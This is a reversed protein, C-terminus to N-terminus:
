NYLWDIDVLSVDIQALRTKKKQSGGLYGLLIKDGVFHIAIYCYWGDPDGELTKIKGWTKGNDKSVAINLPIRKGKTEPNSGDNNNWVLVLDGKGPIRAISAPSLPSVINSKGAATWHIGKDRSIAQYQVGANTRMFMMINGNKLEVVGPEQTIVSDPNSVESGQFWSMGNDDSYYSFIRGIQSWTTAPTQHLSVALLIRGSKLQIVRNNNLVFYGQQDNICPRPDSWSKGEDESFRVMPICDNVANKRLYFLAIKGNRLRLLSVSMVNMKGENEIVLQDKDTWTRGGDYSTRSALYAPAHDNSSKGTYRSYVLMISGDKLTIFDCESNRPNDPGPPLQLVKMVSTDAPLGYAQQSILVAILIVRLLLVNIGKM